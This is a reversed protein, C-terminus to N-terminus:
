AGVRSAALVLRVALDLWLVILVAYGLSYAWFRHVVHNSTVHIAAHAIRSLVFLWALVVELLLPGLFLAAGAGVFLLVPLQFQNDFANSVQRERDPWPARSLAIAGLSVKSSTVLPLRITGVRLLLALALAGQLWLAALLLIDNATM